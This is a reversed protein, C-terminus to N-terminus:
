ARGKGFISGPHKTWPCDPCEIAHLAEVEPRYDSLAKAGAMDAKIWDVYLEPLEPRTWAVYAKLWAVYAKTIEVPLKGRIPKMLRLRTEVEAKPKHNKIYAIRNALSETLPECLVDHHLHWILDGIKRPTM